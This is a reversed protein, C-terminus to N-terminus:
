KRKTQSRGVAGGRPTSSRPSMTAKIKGGLNRLGQGARSLLGGSTPTAGGRFTTPTAGGRFTSVGDLSESITSLSLGPRNRLSGPGLSATESAERVRQSPRRFRMGRGVRQGGAIAEAQRRNQVDGVTEPRPNRLTARGAGAGAGRLAGSNLPPASQYSANVSGPPAYQGPPPANPSAGGAASSPLPPPVIAPRSGIAEAQESLPVARSVEPEQFGAAAAQLAMANAGAGQPGIGQGLFNNGFGLGGLQGRAIGALTTNLRMGQYERATRTIDDLAYPALDPRTSGYVGTKAPTRDLNLRPQVTKKRKVRRKKSLCELVSSCKVKKERRKKKAM